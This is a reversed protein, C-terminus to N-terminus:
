QDLEKQYASIQELFQPPAPVSVLRASISSNGTVDLNFQRSFRGDISVGVAISRNADLDKTQVLRKTKSFQETVTFASSESIYLERNDLTFIQINFTDQANAVQVLNGKAWASLASHQNIDRALNNAYAEVTGAGAGNAAGSFAFYTGEVTVGNGSLEQSLSVADYLAVYANGQTSVSGIDSPSMETLIFDGNASHNNGVTLLHYDLKLLTIVTKRYDPNKEPGNPQDKNHESEGRSGAVTIQNSPVGQGLLFDRLKEARATGLKLNRSASGQKDTFGELEVNLGTGKLVDAFKALISADSPRLESVGTDYNITGAYARAAPNILEAATFGADMFKQKVHEAYDQLKTTTATTEIQLGNNVFFVTDVNSNIRIAANDFNPSLFAVTPSKVLIKETPTKLSINPQSTPAREILTDIGSNDAALKQRLSALRAMPNDGEPTYSKGSSLVLAGKSDARMTMQASKSENRSGSESSTETSDIKEIASDTDKYQATVGFGFEDSRGVQMRLQMSCSIDAHQYHYFTPSLGLDLLSRGGLDDRQTTFAEIQRITNDDLATQAAAIGLGLESIFNAVSSDALIEGPTKDILDTM